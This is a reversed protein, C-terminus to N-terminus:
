GAVAGQLVTEQAITVKAELVLAHLMLIDALDIM